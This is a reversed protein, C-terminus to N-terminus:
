SAVLAMVLCILPISGSM